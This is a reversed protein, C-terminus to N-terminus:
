SVCSFPAYYSLRTCRLETPHLTVWSPAAYSLLSFRLATPQPPTGWYPAAYSLLICRLVSPHMSAWYPAAYCLCPVAYSLLTSHLEAHHLIAWCTCGLESVAPYGLITYGLETHHLTIRPSATPHLTARFPAAYSLITCSRVTCCVFLEPLRLESPAVYSLLTYRVWCSEAKSLLLCRLM